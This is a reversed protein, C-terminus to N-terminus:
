YKAIKIFDKRKPGNSIYKIPLNCHQEIFTCLAYTEKPLDKYVPVVDDLNIGANWTDVEVDGIKYAVCVQPDKIKALIDIKTLALSSINSVTIAHKLLPLDLWGCRRKRGTTSGFEHGVERISDGVINNLETPFPGEGVRTSYTKLVGLVEIKSDFLGAGAYIGGLCTSSSTAYPYTPSYDIDLLVGQAGEYMINNKNETAKKIFTVTDILYPMIHKGVEFLKEAEEAIDPINNVGYFHKLLYILEESRSLKNYINEISGLDALKLAYRGVKSEYAPGVGRGTTGIRFKGQERVSELLKHYSTVVVCNMSIKLNNTSVPINHKILNSKEILFSDPDIVVGHGIVSVCGKNLIGSPIVHLIVKKDEFYITHGANPGGQYRVAIDYKSSLADTVKGKGEDGWQAGIIALCSM